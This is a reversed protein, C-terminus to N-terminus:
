LRVPVFSVTLMGLYDAADLMVKDASAMSEMDNCEAIALHMADLTRLPINGVRDILQRAAILDDNGVEHLILFGQEIDREFTAFIQQASAEGLEKTRERRALLCRLETVTLTSIHTDDQEIMWAAFRESEQENLYWKALASTDLYTKM